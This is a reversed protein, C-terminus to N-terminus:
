KKKNEFVHLLGLYTLQSIKIHNTEHHPGILIKLLVLFRKGFKWKFM